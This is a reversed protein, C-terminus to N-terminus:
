QVRRSTLTLYAKRCVAAGTELMKRADSDSRGLGTQWEVFRDEAVCKLCSPAVAFPHFVGQRSVSGVFWHVDRGARKAERM